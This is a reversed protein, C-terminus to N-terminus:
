LKSKLTKVKRAILQSDLQEKLVKEVTTVISAVASDIIQGM